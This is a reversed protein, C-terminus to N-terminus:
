KIEHNISMNWILKFLQYSLRSLVIIPEGYNLNQDWLNVSAKNTFLLVIFTYLISEKLIYIYM